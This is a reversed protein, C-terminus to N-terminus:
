RPQRIARLGVGQAPAPAPYVPEDYDPPGYGGFLEPPPPDDAVRERPHAVGWEWKKRLAEHWAARETRTRAIYQFMGTKTPNAPRLVRATAMRATRREMTELRSHFAARDQYYARNRAILGADLLPGAVGVVVTLWRSTFGPRHV